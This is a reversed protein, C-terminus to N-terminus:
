MSSFPKWQVLWFASWLIGAVGLILRVQALRPSDKAQRQKRRPRELSESDDEGKDLTQDEAAAINHQLFWAKLRNLGELMEYSFEISRKGQLTLRLVPNPRSVALVFTGSSRPRLFAALAYLALLWRPPFHETFEIKEISDAPIIETKGWRRLVLESPTLELSFLAYKLGIVWVIAGPLSLVFAVATVGAYTKAISGQPVFANSTAVMLTLFFVTGALISGILMPGVLSAGVSYFVENDNRKRWPILWFMTWGFGLLVFGLPRWPHAVPSPVESFITRLNLANAAIVRTTQGDTFATYFLTEPQPFPTLLEKYLPDGSRIYLSSRYWGRVLGRVTHPTATGHELSRLLERLRASLEPSAERVPHRALNKVVRAEDRPIFIRVVTPDSFALLWLGVYLALAWVAIRLIDHM